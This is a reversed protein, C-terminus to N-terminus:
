KVNKISRSTKQKQILQEKEQKIKQLLIESPEDNPDQPVLKGEFAQKLITSRLTDIQLLMSNVISETNKILSFAMELQSHIEYQEEFSMLPIPMIALKTANVNAQGVQQTVVTKIYSKGFISNIYWSLLLPNYTEDIIKVRVLYGAFVTVPHSEKYVATKGVLEASNTRNFLVDGAHLLFQKLNKWNEPYYKLNDFNLEGDQINGMRLVPIKSKTTTAKESTGYQINESIIGVKIWVWEPPIMFFGNITNFEIDQLKKDQNKRGLKIKELLSKLNTKNENRWKETLKGEFLSKLFSEKYELLQLKVIELINKTHDLKSFLEEIKEVIRTQENLPPIPIDLTKIKSLQLSPMISEHTLIKFDITKLFYYIFESSIKGIPNIIGIHSVVYSDMGLISKQNLHTSAGSKTFLVSGKSFMKLKKAGLENVHDKTKNLYVTNTKGMDAVRVFPYEGNKFFEEGQPASNGATIDSIMELNTKIWGNPVSQELVMESM